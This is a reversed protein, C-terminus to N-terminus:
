ARRDSLAVGIRRMGEDFDIKPAYGLDTIAADIRCAGRARLLAVEHPQPWHELRGRKMLRRLSTRLSRIKATGLAGRALRSVMRISKPMGGGSGDYQVPPDPMPALRPPPAGALKAHAAYYSRWPVAQAGSIIYRHGLQRKQSVALIAADVVDDVFVAPCLGEPGDPLIVNGSRFQDILGDTWLASGPGYVITPQLITHPLGSMALALEMARKIKKYASGPGNCPSSETLDGGPWQDYVAISSLQVFAQIDAAKCAQLLENFAGLLEDQSAEFDYALHIIAYQGKLADRLLDGSRSYGTRVISVDPLRTLRASPRGRVVATVKAGERQALIEVLRAGIFGGAGTVLIRKGRLSEFETM